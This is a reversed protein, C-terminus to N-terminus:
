MASKMGTYYFVVYAKISGDAQPIGFVKVPTGSTLNNTITMQGAVTTIDVFSITVINNTRDVQYVLTASGTTTSLDVPVANIGGTESMMFSGNSYGTAAAGVPLTTPVLVTWPAAWANTAAPDNWVAFSAGAAPFLGVTGGFNVSGNTANDFSTIVNTGSTVITPYAFNWFKFGSIPSGTSPDKGNPTNSSIFRLTTTYNDSSTNFKRTYTFGNLNANSISGEYRAIEIDIAQAVLPSALPDTVSCHIKFGRVFNGSALFSPGKGIPISDSVANWPTRFFFETNADVALPIGIGAENEVTIVDTTTNVHLVHGEPSLWVSNFANAAWIRVAVLTGGAQYRAAVRVYKGPLTNAVTSFSKITAVTKADVDYFLTGNAGDVLIQLMESSAIATEPNTPPEVPFDKTIMISNDDSAVSSVNGYTHRLIFRTIDWIPQHRVPGNFNVAWITQGSAPPVHAVLFAPHSLDFELDLANTSNATVTLPLSFGVTVPVTKSGSAGTAGQIQIQSPPVTTGPALEFGAQPNASATLTVDVPNAGVTLIAKSYTGVPVSINGLIEGLQDLEVLNISPAPSPATYVTVPTGAGQPVLAISLIKVDIAAWDETSADSVMMNLSGSQGGGNSGGLSASSGCAVSFLPMAAVLLGLLIRSSRSNM